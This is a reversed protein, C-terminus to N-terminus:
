RAEGWKQHPVYSMNAKKRCDTNEVAGRCSSNNMKGGGRSARDLINFRAGNKRSVGGWKVM